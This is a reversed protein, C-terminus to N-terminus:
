VDERIIEGNPGIRLLIVQPETYIIIKKEEISFILQTLNDVDTADRLFFGVDRGKMRDEMSSYFLFIWFYEIEYIGAIRFAEMLLKVVEDNIREESQSESIYNLISVISRLLPRPAFKEWISSHFDTPYEEHLLEKLALMIQFAWEYKVRVEPPVAVVFERNPIENNNNNDSPTYFSKLIEDMTLIQYPYTSEDHVIFRDITFEDMTHGIVVLAHYGSYNVNWWPIEKVDVGIIVPLGSEVYSYISSLMQHDSLILNESEDKNPTYFANCNCMRLLRAISVLHLGERDAFHRGTALEQIEPITRSKVSGDSLNELIKLSIWTAGQACMGCVSEPMIYPVCEILEEYEEYSGPCKIFYGNEVNMNSPCSLYCESIESSDSLPRCHVFGFNKDNDALFVRKVFSQAKPQSSYFVEFEKSWNNDHAAFVM